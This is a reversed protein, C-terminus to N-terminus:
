LLKGQRNRDIDRVKEWFGLALPHRAAFALWYLRQNKSGAVLEHTETTQMGKSKLLERWHELIKGRVLDDSRDTDVSSRWGPAFADLPSDKQQIYRRLNRQLDQVSVHMLIDMKAVGALKRIIEFPISELDYPDLFAFHLGRPHLSRIVADVTAAAEGSIPIVPATASRLRACCAGLIEKRADAVYLNSFQSKRRVAENWAILSSGDRIEKTDRIRVRGPGAFLDIYTAGAKGPGLYKRRAASSIGVYRALRTHKDKAWDGVLERPLGDQEDPEYKGPDLEPPPVM